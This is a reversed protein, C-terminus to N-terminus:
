VTGTGQAEDENTELTPTETETVTEEEEESLFESDDDPDPSEPSDALQQNQPSELEQHRFQRTMRALTVAARASSMNPTDPLLHRVPLRGTCRAPHARPAPLGRPSRPSTGKRSKKMRAAASTRRHREEREHSERCREITAWEERHRQQVRALLRCGEEVPLMVAAMQTLQGMWIGWRSFHIDIREAEKPSWGENNCRKGRWILADTDSLQTVETALPFGWTGLFMNVQHHIIARTFLRPAPRGQKTRPHM